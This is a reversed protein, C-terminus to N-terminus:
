YNILSFLNIFTSVDNVLTMLLVYMIITDYCYEIVIYCTCIM